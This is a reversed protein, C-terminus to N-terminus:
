RGGAYRARITPLLYEEFARELDYAPAFGWDRRASTDDVDCPWTDVIGQRKSDVQYTIAAQPFARLV